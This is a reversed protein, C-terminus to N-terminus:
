SLAPVLDLLIVRLLNNICVPAPLPRQVEQSSQGVPLFVFDAQSMITNQRGFVMKTEQRQTSKTKTKLRCRNSWRRQRSAKDFSYLAEVGHTLEKISRM